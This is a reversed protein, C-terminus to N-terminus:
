LIESLFYVCKKNYIIERIAELFFDENLSNYDLHIAVEHDVLVSADLHQDFMFPIAIVPTGTYIAELTGFLGCHSIFAIM